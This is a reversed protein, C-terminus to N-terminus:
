RRPPKATLKVSLTIPRGDRVIEVTITDGPQHRGIIRNLDDQSMIKEGNIKTIIDGGLYLVQGSRLRMPQTGGRIGANDASHGKITEMVLVGYDVPLGLDDAVSSVPAPFPVIGLWPRVAYGHTILDPIFRKALNVPIAFGIGVSGRSPSIIQSNIGIMEGRSNLLPGGSNGPNISADTQIAGEIIRQNEARIPRELASIIGETLTHAFGFPNGIALVKQGVVLRSSDGMKVVTLPKKFGSIKIVALDTDPDSGILRAPYKSGDVLTVTLREAGEVVHHNTLIHGQEDIISGTGGGEQQYVSFFDRVYTVTSINVVGPSVRRYVEINNREDDTLTEGEATPASAVAPEPAKTPETQGRHELWRDCGIALGAAMVASVVVITWMQRLTLQIM